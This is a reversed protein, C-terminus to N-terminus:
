RAPAEPVVVSLTPRREVERVPWLHYARLWREAEVADGAVCIRVGPGRLGAWQGLTPNSRHTVGWIERREGREDRGARRRERPHPGVEVAGGSPM